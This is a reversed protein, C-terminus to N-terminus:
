ASTARSSREAITSSRGPNPRARQHVPQQPDPRVLHALLAPGQESSGGGRRVQPVPSRDQGREPCQRRDSEGPPRRVQGLHRHVQRVPHPLRGTGTAVGQDEPDTGRRRHRPIEPQRGAVAQGGPNREEALLDPLESWVHQRRGGARDPRRGGRPRGDRGGARADHPAVDDHGLIPNADGSEKRVSLARPCSRIVRKSRKGAGGDGGEVGLPCENQWLTESRGALTLLRRPRSCLAYLTSGRASPTSGRAALQSNLAYLRSGVSSNSLPRFPKGSDSM